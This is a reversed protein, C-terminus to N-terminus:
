INEFVSIWSNQTLFGNTGCDKIYATEDIQPNLIIYLM